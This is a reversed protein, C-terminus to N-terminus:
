TLKEWLDYDFGGRAVIRGKGGPYSEKIILARSFGTGLKSTHTSLVLLIEGDSNDRYLHGTVIEFERM